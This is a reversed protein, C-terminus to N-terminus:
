QYGRADLFGRLTIFQYDRRVSTVVQKVQSALGKGRLFRSSQRENAYRVKGFRLFPASRDEARRRCGPHLLRAIFWVQSPNGSSEALIKQAKAIRCARRVQDDGEALHLVGVVMVEGPRLIGGEHKAGLSLLRHLVQGVLQHTRD